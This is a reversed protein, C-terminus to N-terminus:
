KQIDPIFTPVMQKSRLAGWDFDQFWPHEKVEDSGKM